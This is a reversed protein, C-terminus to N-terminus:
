FELHASFAAMKSWFFDVFIGTLTPHFTIDKLM